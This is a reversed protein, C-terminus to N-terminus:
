NAPKTESIIYRDVLRRFQGVAADVSLVAMKFDPDLRLNRDQATIMERDEDFATLIGNHISQTVDPRDILFNHPHAFFYHTSNDTEPTLAQCGRFALSKERFGDKDGHGAATMGSDMLLVGPILFEYFMWRDVKAGPKFGGYEAAYLPAETNKVWKTLHIGREKREVHPLVAAYDPSGGLTTPHLYPLHSFDLLNDAILLYNTDYHVYGDLARWAPHDLWPTSPILATDALEPAGMWVWIWRHTEVVPFSRVKLAAPVREQAPVAICQGSKDFLLGHYMCRIHEGEKRGKSLPAARHCCRDQLAFVKGAADRGFVLPMNVVTRAFLGDRPVEKDWAAVYWCNQIFM